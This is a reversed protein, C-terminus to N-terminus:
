KNTFSHNINIEADKIGQIFTDINKRNRGFSVVSSRSLDCVSNIFVDDGYFLITIQEGCSRSFFSPHTQAFVVNHGPHSIQWELQKGVQNVIALLEFRTLSTTIVKFKLRSKQLYYFLCGVLTPIFIILFDATNFPDIDGQIAGIIYYSFVIIPMMLCFGVIGFHSFKGCFDLQLEETDVSKQYQEDTM